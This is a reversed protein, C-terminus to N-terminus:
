LSERQLTANAPINALLHLFNKM